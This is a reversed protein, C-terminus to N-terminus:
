VCVNREIQYGGINAETELYRGIFPAIPYLRMAEKILGHVLMNGRGDHAAMEKALREQM